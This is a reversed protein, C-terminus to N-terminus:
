LHLLTKDYEVLIKRVDFKGMVLARGRKGMEARQSSTLAMMNEMKGVLDSVDNVACLFGNQGDEVVERCGTTRSTIIPIEMSAAELLCRPIGEHYFSPFIFCDAQRLFPRVDRAFGGYQIIGKKQWYRLEHETISDPHNKEFFGILDFRIDPDKQKLIRAAEVYIGIGKSKLLRTSMLFRFTKSRAVPKHIQPFFYETNVGEGALIKIRSEAVLKRNIFVDADERNLFWVERAKKLSKRYLFSVIRNLLNQKDFTYGLGTIVAVSPIACRSAALSGYINPKIVYHFIFDPKEALYIKKLSRYLMYDRLPNESRNNFHIELYSCGAKELESVFPDRPAVILVDFRQLLHRILDIRFNYVSWASNAVLTIKKKHKETQNANM